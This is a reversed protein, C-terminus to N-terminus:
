FFDTRLGVIILIRTKTELCVGFDVGYGATFRMEKDDVENLGDTSM